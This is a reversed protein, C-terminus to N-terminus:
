IVPAESCNAIKVSQRKERNNNKMLLGSIPGVYKWVSCLSCPVFIKCFLILCPRYPPPLARLGIVLYKDPSCHGSNQVIIGQKAARTRLVSSVVALQFHVEFSIKKKGRLEWHGGFLCIEPYAWKKSYVVPSEEWMVWSLFLVFTLWTKKLTNIKDCRIGIVIVIYDM